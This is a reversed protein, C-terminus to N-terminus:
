ARALAGLGERYTPYQLRIGLDGKIRNNRVRKSEAFFSQAMPSLEAAKFPIAPPPALGLLEAAYAVVDEASAPEDDAVNYVAHRGAGALAAGLVHVIDAVHIRNFVQGAKVIRRATGTRLTDIPSRGPGYIGALRFIRVRKSSARGLAQWQIEAALRRQSRDSQPAPATDEDVWAGQRDGYVGITSLYGIWQLRPAAAIDASHHALVPDGDAGPPASILLHTATALREHVGDAPRTGDLVLGDFGAAVLAQAGELSTASGSIRWGESRLRHALFRATYGLGLCLLHSMAAAHGGM